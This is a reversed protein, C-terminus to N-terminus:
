AYTRRRTGQARLLGNWYRSILRHNRDRGVTPADPVLPIDSMPSRHGLLRVSDLVPRILKALRPTTVGRGESACRTPLMWRSRFARTRDWELGMTKALAM